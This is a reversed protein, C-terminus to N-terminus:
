CRRPSRERQCTMVLNVLVRMEPYDIKDPQCQCPVGGPCGCVAPVVCAGGRMPWWGRAPNVLPPAVARVLASARLRELVAFQPSTAAAAHPPDLPKLALHHDSTM